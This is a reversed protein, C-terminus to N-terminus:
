KLYARKFETGRPRVPIEIILDYSQLDALTSSTDFDEIYGDFDLGLGLYQLKEKKVKKTAAM